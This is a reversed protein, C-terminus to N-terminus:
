PSIGIYAYVGATALGVWTKGIDTVTQSIEPHLMTGFVLCGLGALIWGIMYLGVIWWSPAGALNVKLPSAGSQTIGLTAVVLGSIVGGVTTVLISIAGTSPVQTCNSDAACKTVETVMYGVAFLYLALLLLALVGGFFQKM